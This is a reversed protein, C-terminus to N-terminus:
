PLQIWYQDCFNSFAEVDYFVKAINAGHEAYINVYVTKMPVVIIKAIDPLQPAELHVHDFNDHINIPLEVYRKRM